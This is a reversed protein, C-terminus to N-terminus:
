SLKLDSPMELQSFNSLFGDRVEIWMSVLIEMCFGHSPRWDKGLSPKANNGGERVERCSFSKELKRVKSHVPISWRVARWCNVISLHGLSSFIAPSLSGEERIFSSIESDGRKSSSHLM